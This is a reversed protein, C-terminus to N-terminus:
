GQALETKTKQREEPLACVSLHNKIISLLDDLENPIPLCTIGREQAPEETTPLDTTLLLIPVSALLINQRLLDSLMLGDGGILHHNILFLAPCLAQTINLAESMTRAFITGIKLEHKLAQQLMVGLETDSEVIMVYPIFVPKHEMMMDDLHFGAM